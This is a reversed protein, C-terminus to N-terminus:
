WKYVDLHPLMSLPFNLWERKIIEPYTCSICLAVFNYADQFELLLGKVLQWHSGNCLCGAWCSKLWHTSNLFYKICLVKCEWKVVKGCHVCYVSWESLSCNLIINFYDCSSPLNDLLVTTSLLKHLVTVNRFRNEHKNCTYLTRNHKVKGM